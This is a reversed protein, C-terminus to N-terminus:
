AYKLLQFNPKLKKLNIILKKILVQDDVKHMTRLHFKYVSKSCLASSCGKVECHFKAFHNMIVHSKLSSKTAYGKNCSKCIENITGQHLKTHTKLRSAHGFKKDCESCALSPPLHSMIHEKLVNKLGFRSGCCDCIWAKNTNHM